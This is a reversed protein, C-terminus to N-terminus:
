LVAVLSAALVMDGELGELRRGDEIRLNRPSRGSEDCSLRWGSLGPEGAVMPLWGLRDLFFLPLQNPFLLLCLEKMIPESGSPLSLVDVYWAFPLLYEATGGAFFPGGGGANGSRLDKPTLESKPASSM